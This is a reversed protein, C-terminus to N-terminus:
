KPAAVFFLGLFSTALAQLPALFFNASRVTPIPESSIFLLAICISLVVLYFVSVIVTMPLLPGAPEGTAGPGGQKYAAAGVLTLVPLINPLFWPWIEGASDRFVLSFLTVLGFLLMGWLWWFYTLVLRAKERTM